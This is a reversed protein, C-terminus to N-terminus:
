RRGGPCHIPTVSFEPRVRRLDECRREDPAATTRGHPQPQPRAPRGTGTCRDSQGRDHLLRRWSRGGRGHTRPLDRAIPLIDVQFAKQILASGVFIATNFAVLVMLQVYPPSTNFPTEITSFEALLERVPKPPGATWGLRPRTRRYIPATGRCSARAPGTPTAVVPGPRSMDLRTLRALLFELVVLFAALGLKYM